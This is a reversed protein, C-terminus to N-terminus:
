GILGLEKLKKHLTEYRLGIKKACVKQENWNKIAESFYKKEFMAIAEDFTLRIDPIKTEISKTVKEDVDKSKEKTIEYTELTNEVVGKVYMEKKTDEFHYPQTRLKTVDIKFQEILRHISRRDIAGIRAAESINGNTHQLLSILFAMKFMEKAKKFPINIDVDYDINGEIIKHSIDENIENVTVGLFKSMAEKVIPEVKEKREALKELNEKKPM